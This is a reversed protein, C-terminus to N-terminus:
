QHDFGEGADPAETKKRKTRALTNTSLFYLDSWKLDRSHELVISWLNTGLLFSKFFGFRLSIVPNVFTALITMKSIKRFTEYPLIPLFHCIKPTFKLKFPWFNSICTPYLVLNYKDVRCGDWIQSINWFYCVKFIALVAMNQIKCLTLQM